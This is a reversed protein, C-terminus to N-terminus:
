SLHKFSSANHYKIPLWVSRLHKIFTGSRPRTAQLPDALVPLSMDFLRLEPVKVELLKCCLWLKDLLTELDLVKHECLQRWAQHIVVM